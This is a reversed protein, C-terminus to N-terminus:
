SRPITPYGLTPAVVKSPGYFKKDGFKICFKAFIFLKMFIKKEKNQVYRKIPNIKPRSRSITPYSADLALVKTFTMKSFTTLDFLIQYFVFETSKRVIDM